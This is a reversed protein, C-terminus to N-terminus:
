HREGPDIPAAPQTHTAPMTGIHGHWRVIPAGTRDAICPELTAHEVNFREGLVDRVDRVRLKLQEFRAPSDAEPVLHAELARRHEDPNWM